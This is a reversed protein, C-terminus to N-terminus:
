NELGQSKAIERQKKKWEEFERKRRIDYTVVGVTFAAITVGALVYPNSLTAIIPASSPLVAGLEGGAGFSLMTQGLMGRARASTAGLVGRGLGQAMGIRQAKNTATVLNHLNNWVRTLQIGTWLLNGLSPDSGLRQFDVVSLRLANMTYLLRQSSHISQDIGRVDFVAKIPIIIEENSM